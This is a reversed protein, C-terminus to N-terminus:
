QEYKMQGKKNKAYGIIKQVILTYFLNMQKFFM